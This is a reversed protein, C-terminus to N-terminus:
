GVSLRVNSEILTVKRVVDTNKEGNRSSYTRFSISNQILRLINKKSGSASLTCLFDSGVGWM